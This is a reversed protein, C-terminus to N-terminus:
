FTKGNTAGAMHQSSLKKDVEIQFKAIPSSSQRGRKFDPKMPWYFSWAAVPATGDARTWHLLLAVHSRLVFIGVAFLVAPRQCIKREAATLKQEL